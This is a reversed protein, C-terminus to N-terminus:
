SCSGVQWTPSAHGPIQSLLDQYCSYLFSVQSASFHMNQCNQTGMEPFPRLMALKPLWRSLLPVDESSEESRSHHLSLSAGGERGVQRQVEQIVQHCRQLAKNQRQAIRGMANPRPIRLKRLKSSLSLLLSLVSLSHCIEKMGCRPPWM